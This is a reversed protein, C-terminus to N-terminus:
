VPHTPRLGKREEIWAAIESRVWGVSASGMKVQQPFEGLGVMRYISPRSLGVVRMVDPLRMIDELPVAPVHQAVVKKPGRRKPAAASERSLGFLKDLEMFTDWMGRLNCISEKVYYADVGAECDNLDKAVDKLRNILYGTDQYVALANRVMEEPTAGKVSM